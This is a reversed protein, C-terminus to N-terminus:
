FRLVKTNSIATTRVQRRHCTVAQKAISFYAMMCVTLSSTRVEESLPLKSAKFLSTRLVKIILDTVALHQLTHRELVKIGFPSQFDDLM